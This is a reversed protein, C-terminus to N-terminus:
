STMVGRVRLYDLVPLLPLGLVTFQSGEIRSFLQAGPGEIRYCGVCWSIEPWELDLYSEIFADSLPRVHMRARDVVRWVPRGGEAMVAASVLEHRKGSLRRLHEAAEARDRPKDLMSGDELAVVSDCGLVLAQGDGSSVKIAKLEALADAMDRAGFGDAILAAKASEEDVGASVPEFPVGAATLMARRSASQSALVVRM